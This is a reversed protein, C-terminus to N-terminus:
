LTTRAAGVEIQDLHQLVQPSFFDANSFEDDIENEAMINLMAAILEQEEKIEELTRLTPTFSKTHIYDPMLKRKECFSSLALKRSQVSYICQRSDSALHSSVVSKLTHNLLVDKFSAMNHQSTLDARNVGSCKAVYVPRQKTDDTEMDVAFCRSRLCVMSLINMRPYELKLLGPRKENINSYAPHTPALGSADLINRQSLEILGQNLNQTRIELFFSDVDTKILESDPFVSKLHHYYAVMKIKSLDLIAQAVQPVRDLRVNKKRMEVAVLNEGIRSFGLFWPQILKKKFKKPCTILSINRYKRPQLGTYGYLGVILGKIFLRMIENQANKRMDLLDKAFPAMFAKQTYKVGKLFETVVLGRRMMYVLAKSHVIYNERPGLHSILRPRPERNELDVDCLAALKRQEESLWESPVVRREPLGPYEDDTEWLEPPYYCNVMVTYAEPGETDLNLWDVRALEDGEVWRFDSYPLKETLMVSGYHDTVDFGMIVKHPEEAKFTSTGPFNSESLKKAVFSEGGRIGHEMFLYMTPDHILELRCGTSKLMCDWILASRSFYHMPDIMYKDWFLAKFQEFYNALTVVFYELGKMVFDMMNACHTTTWLERANDYECPTLPGGHSATLRDRPPLATHSVLDAHSKFDRACDFIAGNSLAQLTRTSYIQGALGDAGGKAMANFLATPDVGLFSNSDMLKVQRKRFWGAGSLQITAGMYNDRNPGVVSVSTVKHHDSKYDSLAKFIAHFHTRSAYHGVVPMFIPTKRALNCTTKHSLGLLRGTMHCHDYARDDPQVPKECLWCRTARDLQAQEQPTLRLPLHLRKPYLEEELDFIASIFHLAVGESDSHRMIDRALVGEHNLVVICYAVPVHEQLKVTGADDPGRRPDTEAVDRRVFEFNYYVTFHSKIMKHYKKITFAMSEGPKAYTVAQAGHEKCFFEHQSHLLPTGLRSLCFICHYKRLTNKTQTNLLADLDKVLVFHRKEGGDETLLLLTVHKARREQPCHIPYLKKKEESMGLISLSFSPNISEFRELAALTMPAMDIDSCNIYKSIYPLYHKQRNPKKKMRIKNAEAETMLGAVISLAFCNNREKETGTCSKINVIGRKSNHLWDPTPIYCGVATDLPEFVGAELHLSHVLGIVWMSDNDYMHEGKHLVEMIALKIQKAVERRSHIMVIRNKTRVYTTKHQVDLKHAMPRERMTEVKAALSWRLAPVPSLMAWLKSILRVKNDIMVLNLDVNNEYLHLVYRLAVREM